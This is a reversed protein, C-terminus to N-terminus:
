QVADVEADITWCSACSSCPARLHVADERGINGAGARQRNRRDLAAGHLALRAARPRRGFTTGPRCACPCAIRCAAGTEATRARHLLLRRALLAVSDDGVEAAGVSSRPRGGTESGDPAAPAPARASGLCAAAALSLVAPTRRASLRRAPSSSGSPNGSRRRVSRHPRRRASRPPSQDDEAPARSEAAATPRSGRSGGKQGTGAPCGTDPQGPPM